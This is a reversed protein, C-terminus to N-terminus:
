SCIATHSRHHFTAGAARSLVSSGGTCHRRQRHARFYLVYVSAFVFVFVFVNYSGRNERRLVSCHLLRVQQVFASHILDITWKLRSLLNTSSASWFAFYPFTLIIQQNMGFHNPATFMTSICITLPYCVIHIIYQVICMTDQLNCM